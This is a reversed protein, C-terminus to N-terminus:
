YSGDLMLIGSVYDANRNARLCQYRRWVEIPAPSDFLNKISGPGATNYDAEESLLGFMLSRVSHFDDATAVNGTELCQAVFSNDEKWILVRLQLFSLPLASIISESM